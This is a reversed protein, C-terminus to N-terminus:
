NGKTTDNDTGSGSCDVLKVSASNLAVVQDTTLSGIVAAKIAQIQSTGMVSFQDTTL